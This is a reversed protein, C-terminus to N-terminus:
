LITTEWQTAKPGSHTFVHKRFLRAKCKPMSKTHPVLMDAPFHLHWNTGSNPNFLSESSVTQLVFDSNVNNRSAVESERFEFTYEQRIKPCRTQLRANLSDNGARSPIHDTKMIPYLHYLIGQVNRSYELTFLRPSRTLFGDLFGYAFILFNM